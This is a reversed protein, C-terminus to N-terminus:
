QKNARKVFNCSSNGEIWSLLMNSNDNMSGMAGNSHFTDLIAKDTGASKITYYGLYDEGWFANNNIVRIEGLQKKEDLNEETRLENGVSARQLCQRCKEALARYAKQYNMAIPFTHKFTKPNDMLEQASKHTTACASTAIMLSVAVFLKINQM